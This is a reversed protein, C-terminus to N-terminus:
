VFFNRWPSPSVWNLTLLVLLALNYDILKEDLVIFIM